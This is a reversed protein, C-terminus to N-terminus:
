IKFFDVNLCSLEQEHKSSRVIERAGEISKVLFERIRNRDEHAFSVVTSFHIDNASDRDLSEIAKMRWNAHHKSIMLSDSGLFIRNVGNKYRGNEFAVLGISVLFELIMSVKELSLHLHKAMNEKTQFEPITVLIHIAAYYWASYYQTQDLPSLVRKIDVRDKLVLRKEHITAIQEKFKNKLSTTGARELQVLLLFYHSEDKTHGLFSNLEDAQELSFNADKNLVQSVYTMHCNLAKAMKSKFGRGHGVQARIYDRLYRKFSDYEFVSNKM